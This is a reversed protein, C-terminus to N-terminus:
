QRPPLKAYCLTKNKGGPKSDDGRVYVLMDKAVVAKYAGLSSTPEHKEIWLSSDTQLDYLSFSTSNSEWGGVYRNGATEYSLNTQDDFSMQQTNATALSYRYLQGWGGVWTPPSVTKWVV